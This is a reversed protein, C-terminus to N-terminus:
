GETEGHKQRLRDYRDISSRVYEPGVDYDELVIGCLAAIASYPPRGLGIKRLSLHLKRIFHNTDPKGANPAPVIPAESKIEVLHSSLLQLTESVFVSEEAEADRLRDHFRMSLRVAEPDM